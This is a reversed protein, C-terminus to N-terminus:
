TPKVECSFCPLVLKLRWISIANTATALRIALTTLMKNRREQGILSAVLEFSAVLRNAVDKRVLRLHRTVLNQTGDLGRNIRWVRTPTFLRNSTAKKAESRM